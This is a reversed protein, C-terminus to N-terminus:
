MRIVKKNVTQNGNTISLLYIGKEIQYTDLTTSAGDLAGEAVVRGSVDLLKYSQLQLAEGTLVVTLKDNTPNPYLYVHQYLMYDFTGSPISDDAWINFNTISIWGGTGDSITFSFNTEGQYTDDAKYIVSNNNLDNQSFTSGVTLIQGNFIINGKAPVSVLTYTLQEASNDNDQAELLDKSLQKSNGPHIEMRNNNVIYPNQVNISACIELNFEELKGGQGSQTDQLRFKWVGNMQEGNFVELKSAGKPVDTRYLRGSNIPCQFFDPAQDDLRVNINQQNGCQKNWLLAEKGSPAVLYAVLDVLRGHTAKILSINLDSIIGSENVELPLEVTVNAATSIVIDQAGSKYEKCALAETIFAHISSWEGHKCNNNGRVRWYYITSKDLVISLKYSLDSLVKSDVISSATFDPNKSIEIEYNVADPKADWTFTVLESIGETGNAPSTPNVHDINGGEVSLNTHLILTDLGDAFAKVIIQGEVSGVVNSTQITLTNVDGAQVKDKAFNVGVGQPLNNVVLFGIEGNFGGLGATTYNITAEDPQCIRLSNTSANVTITPETAEEIRSPSTSSTLFIHDAAKIVIRFLNSIKNPITVNYSGNNPVGLALPVLNPDDDKLASSFSGYINVKQCNIPAKDTNAVDWTVTVLQGVKFRETTAPYTLKFPGAQDTVTLKFEDWVVGGVESNNDRVTLRFTLERSQNPLVENKDSFNGSLINAARPIFRIDGDTAPKFSRFLPGDVNNSGLPAEPGIDYQEWCYTLIDGDEDSGSGRLEFPTSIPLFYKVSPVTVTPYHNNTPIKQSCSFANGGSNTKRYMQFLSGAHFYDDNDNLVNNNGCSGAYSMITSGSGPELAWSGARQDSYDECINWTHSADFQHGVEHAMVRTVIKSLDNDNNCTVGNGKNSQCVSGLQAVGGIDYCISLVHGIQYSSSSVRANIVSTNTGLIRKGENSNNYPDTNPDLFILKDNDDIIVFRIAMEKEYISNMRNVLTNMDALCREVTRRRAVSGWEGTCAMALKFIRLNVIDTRNQFSSHNDEDIEPRENHDVGCMPTNKYIDSQHDRTYYVIYDNTNEESYPDIYVEGNPTNIAAYFGNTSVSFRMNISGDKAYAKYSKITPYRASIGEEMVPSDYVDLLKLGGEPTPIELKLGPANGFEQPASQLYSKLGVVDLNFVEYKVPIITRQDTSRLSIRSEDTKKFFSQAQLSAFAFLILTLTFFKKIM